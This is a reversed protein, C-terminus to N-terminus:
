HDTTVARDAAREAELRRRVRKIAKLTGRFAASAQETEDSPVSGQSIAGELAEVYVRTTREVIADVQARHRALVEDSPTVAEHPFAERAAQHRAQELVRGRVRTAMARAHTSSDDKEILQFYTETFVRAADACEEPSLVSTFAPWFREIFADVDADDIDRDKGM